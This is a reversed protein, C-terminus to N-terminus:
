HLYFYIWPVKEYQTTVGGESEQMRQSGLAFKADCSVFIIISTIIGLGQVTPFCTHEQSTSSNSIHFFQSPAQFQGDGHRIHCGSRSECTDYYM